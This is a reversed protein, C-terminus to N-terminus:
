TKFEFVNLFYHNSFNYRPGIGIIRYRQLGVPATVCCSIKHLSKVVFQNKKCSSCISQQEKTQDPTLSLHFLEFLQRKSM